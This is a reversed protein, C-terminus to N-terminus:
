PPGSLGSVCLPASCATTPVSISSPMEMPMARGNPSSAATKMFSTGPRYERNMRMTTSAIVAMGSMRAPSNM